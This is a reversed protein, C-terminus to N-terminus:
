TGLNDYRRNLPENSLGPRRRDNGEIGSAYLLVLMIIDVMVVVYCYELLLMLNPQSLPINGGASSQEGM